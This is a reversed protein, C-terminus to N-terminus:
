KIGCNHIVVRGNLIMRFRAGCAGFISLVVFIAREWDRMVKGVGLIGGFQVLDGLRL